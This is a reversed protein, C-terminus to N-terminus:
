RPAPETSAVAGRDPDDPEDGDDGDDARARGSAARPSEPATSRTRVMSCPKRAANSGAPMSTPSVGRHLITHRGSSDVRGAGHWIERTREGGLFLPQQRAHVTSEAQRRARGVPPEAVFRIRRPTAQVEHTGHGLTAQRGIRVRKLYVDITAQSATGALGDARRANRISIQELPCALDGRSM